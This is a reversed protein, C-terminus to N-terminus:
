DLFSHRKPAFISNIKQNERDFRFQQSYVYHNGVKDTYLIYIRALNSNYKELMENYIKKTTDDFFGRYSYNNKLKEIIDKQQDESKNSLVNEHLIKAAIMHQLEETHKKEEDEFFKFIKQKSSKYNYAYADFAYLEIREKDACIQKDNKDNKDNKPSASFELKTNVDKVLDIRNESHICFKKDSYDYTIFQLNYAPNDSINELVFNSDKFYTSIEPTSDSILQQMSVILQKDIQTLQYYGLGLAIVGLLSCGTQIVTCVKELSM